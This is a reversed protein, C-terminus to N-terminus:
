VAHLAWEDSFLSAQAIVTSTAEERKEPPYGHRKLLRKVIARMKARAAERETWDITVNKRVVAILERAIECLLGPGMERVASESVCLADYFALEDETLGLAEGRRTGERVRQALEILEDIVQAAGITRNQYRRIAQDLLESFSRAQVLNRQGRAKIEDGLLKRLLEIALNKQPLARVEKLFADSLISIDPSKLGAASFLDIVGGSAIAGSVIQRIAGDLEEPSRRAADASTAKSLAARVAQFFGVDDRIALAAEHPVALAFAKSLETVAQCFRAKGEDQALVHEQASPLLSLKDAVTGGRWARFDFGHFLDLCMEHRALMARVAEEQDIAGRGQGGCATYTRLAAKLEEAM